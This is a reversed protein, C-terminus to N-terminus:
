RAPLPPQSQTASALTRFEDTGGAGTIAIQASGGPGGPPAGLRTTWIPEADAGSQGVGRYVVWKVGAVDQAARRTPRPMSRARRTQGRRRQEADPEPVDRHSRPLRRDLHRRQAAPGDRSRDARERHRRSRGLEGALGRAAQAGPHPVRADPRRRAPRRGRRLLSGVRPQRRGAPLLVDRGRRGARHLRRGAADAVLVHRPRGAAASTQGTQGAPVPEDAAGANPLPEETVRRTDWNRCASGSRPSDAAM